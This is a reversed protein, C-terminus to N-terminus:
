WCDPCLYVKKQDEEDNINGTETACFICCETGCENCKVFQDTLTECFSCKNAEQKKFSKSVINNIKETDSIIDSITRNKRQITPVSVENGSHGYSNVAKFHACRTLTLDVDYIDKIKDFIRCIGQHACNFCFTTTLM